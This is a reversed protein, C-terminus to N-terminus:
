AYAFAMPRQLSYEIVRSVVVLRALFHPSFQLFAGLSSQRISRLSTYYRYGCRLADQTNLLTETLM